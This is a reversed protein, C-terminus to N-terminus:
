PTSLTPPPNFFLSYFFSLDFSCVAPSLLALSSPLSPSSLSFPLYTHHIPLISLLPSTYSFSPVFGLFSLQPFSPPLSLSAQPLSSLFIWAPYLCSNSFLFFFFQPFCVLSSTFLLLPFFPIPLPPFHLSSYLQKTASHHSPRCPHAWRLSSSSFLVSSLHFLLCSLYQGIFPSSLRYESGVGFAGSWTASISASPTLSHQSPLIISQPLNRLSHFVKNGGSLPDHKDTLQIGSSIRAKNGHFKISPHIM